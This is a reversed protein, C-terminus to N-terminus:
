DIVQDARALLTPPITLGLTEATKRNIFLEVKTPQLIPLEAPKAGKLIRATYIGAERYANTISTGYSMLGGIKAFEDWQYIAPIRYRAALAVLKDRQSDFFPDGSVLIAGAEQPALSAFAGDIEGPTAAKVVHVRRQLAAAARIVDNTEPEVYPSTPNVLMAIVVSPPVVQHLLELRKPALAVTIMSVGTVNGAPRSLSTVLGFTIPDGASVFVIPITSTAAKAAIGSHAGGVAAIVSVGRRVLDFALAPLRDYQLEAWRFDITVNAGEVYGTERLGRIFADTVYKAESPSRTSLYGIRAAAQQGEVALPAAIAAATGALFARRDIM